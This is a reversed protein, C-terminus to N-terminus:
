FVQDCFLLLRQCHCSTTSRQGGLKLHTNTDPSASLSGSCVEELWPILTELAIVANSAAGLASLVELWALFKEELFHHLASIIDSVDERTKVLHTYWSRCAYELAVSIQDEVRRPLDVIESNLAYDPLSLINQDLANNMLRLSNFLLEHHLNGPPIYFRKDLCRTPDTIFDPFSKHFLKV